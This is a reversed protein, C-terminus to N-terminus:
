ALKWITTTKGGGPEGLIVLRPHESLVASVEVPPPPPPENKAEAKAQDEKSGLGLRELLGMEARRQETLEVDRRPRTQAAQLMVFVDTLPIRQDSGELPLYRHAEAVAALYAAVEPSDWDAEGEYPQHQEYRAPNLERLLSLLSDLLSSQYAYDVLRDILLDKGTERSLQNYVPRFTPADFCLRRLEEDTFGETLLARINKLRYRRTM